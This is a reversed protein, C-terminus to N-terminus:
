GKVKPLLTVWPASEGVQRLVAGGSLKYRVEGQPHPIQLLQEQQGVESQIPGTASRVDERWQEGARLAHVIDEANRRWGKMTDHCRYFATFAVGSLISFVAVYVLCEVLLIGRRRTLHRPDPTGTRM